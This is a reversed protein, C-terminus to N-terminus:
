KNRTPKWGHHIGERLRRASEAKSKTKHTSVVKGTTKKVLEWLDRSKNFRISYPMM